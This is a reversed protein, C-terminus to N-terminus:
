TRPSMRSLLPGEELKEIAQKKVSEARKTRRLDSMLNM